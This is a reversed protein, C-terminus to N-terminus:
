EEFLNTTEQKLGMMGNQYPLDNKFQIPSEGDSMMIDEEDSNLIERKVKQPRNPPKVQKPVQQQNM